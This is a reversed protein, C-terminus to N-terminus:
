CGSNFCTHATLFQEGPKAPFLKGNNQRFRGPFASANDGLANATKNFLHGKFVFSFGVRYRDAKADAQRHALSEDRRVIENAQGVILEILGLGLAAIAHDGLKKSRTLIWMERDGKMTKSQKEALSLPRLNGGSRTM